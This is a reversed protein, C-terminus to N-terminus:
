WGGTCRASGSARSRASRGRRRGSPRGGAGVGAATSSRRGTACCSSRAIPACRGVMERRAVLRRARLVRSCRTSTAACATPCSRACEISSSCTSTSTARTAPPRQLWRFEARFDRSSRRPSHRALERQVARSRRVAVRFDHLFETDVDAITGELNAQMVELLRACCPPRPRTPASSAARAGCRGEVLARVARRRRRPGGRRAAAHRAATFGLEHELTSRVRASGKDYGRVAAPAPPACRRAARRGDLRGAGAGRAGDARGDQREDDLVDLTRQPQPRAGARLLARVDVVPVCRTACRGPALEVALLASAAAPRVGAGGREAGARGGAAAGASRGRADGAHRRACCGDFTDYFTREREDAVGRQRMDFHARLRRAPAAATM